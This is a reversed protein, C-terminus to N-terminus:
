MWDVIDLGGKKPLRNWVQSDPYPYLWQANPFDQAIDTMHEMGKTDRDPVLVVAAGKLDELYNPYGYRRWKGSGGIACTAPVGLGLLLDVKGEGEVILIQQENEKAGQNLEDAIRYLHVQKQFYEPLGCEWNIGKGHIRHWQAFKKNGEGDDTRVVKALPDGKLNPYFFVQKGEKRIAKAHDSNDEPISFYLGWTGCDTVGRYIYGEIGVDGLHTHCRVRVGSDVPDVACDSDKTRGCIPCPRSLSSRYSNM